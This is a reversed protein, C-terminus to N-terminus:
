KQISKNIYPLWLPQFNEFFYCNTLTQSKNWKQMILQIIIIKSGNHNGYM